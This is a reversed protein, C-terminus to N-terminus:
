VGLKDMDRVRSVPDTIYRVSADIDTRANEFDSGGVAVIASGKGSRKPIATGNILGVQNNQGYVSDPTTSALVPRRHYMEKDFLEWMEPHEIIHTDADIVSAM